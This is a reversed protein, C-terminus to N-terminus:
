DNKYVEYIKKEILYRNGFIDILFYSGKFENVKLLYKKSISGYPRLTKIM